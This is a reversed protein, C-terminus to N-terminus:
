LFVQPLEIEVLCAHEGVDDGVTDAGSLQAVNGRLGRCERDVIHRAGTDRPSDQPEAAFELIRFGENIEDGFADPMGSEGLTLGGCTFGHSTAFATMNLVKMSTRSVVTTLTDSSCM